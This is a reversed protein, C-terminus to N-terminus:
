KEAIDDYLKQLYAQAPKLNKGQSRGLNLVVKGSINDYILQNDETVMGMADPVSFFAFHPANADLLDKSFKFEDHKEGLLSLLTAAIDTQSGITNVQLAQKVAGGYMVLPIQYRYLQFNDPREPYCGMHDPVLVVLTRAWDERQALKDIFAGLHADTYNFANLIKNKIRSQPVEFPEHSSSTQVVWFSNGQKKSQEIEEFARAFLYEDHVGWKSTRLSKDFDEDSIIREFETAKLYSRMNTFNADGGYVYNTAYGSNHLTRSISYINNTKRPYKMLSMTPQAPYGSLIAMLGRDTRFSNAYFNKFHIGRAAMADLNPIINNVSGNREMIYSSFSELVVLIVRVGGEKNEKGSVIANRFTDTLLSDNVPNAERQKTYVMSKFLTEAEKDDMFRYQSAFDGEHNASELFSFVPNVAAHNMRVNDSFYVSGVNNAAVTFGGRASVVLVGILVIDAVTCAISRLLPLTDISRESAKLPLRDLGKAPPAMRNTAMYWAWSLAATLLTLVVIQWVSVSAAADAPSTFVYFLPTSDLPFGWYPYLMINAINALVVAVICVITYIQWIRKLIVHQWWVTITALILPIFTVYSAIAVDLRLAHWLMDLFGDASGTEAIMGHHCLFFAVHGIISLLTFALFYAIVIRIKRIM